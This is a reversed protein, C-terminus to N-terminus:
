RHGCCPYLLTRHKLILNVAQHSRDSVHMDCLPHVRQSVSIAQRLCELCGQFTDSKQWGSPGHSQWHPELTGLQSTEVRPTKGAALFYLPWKIRSASVTVLVTIGDKEDGDLYIAADDASTKVWTWIHHPCLGWMTEDCNLIYDNPFTKPLSSLWLRWRSQADQSAAPRRKFHQRRSLFRSRSKFAWIFGPSCSFLPPKYDDAFKM